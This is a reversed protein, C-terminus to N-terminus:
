GFQLKCIVSVIAGPTHSLIGNQVYVGKMIHRHLLSGYASEPKDQHVVGSVLLFHLNLDVYEQPWNSGTSGTAPLGETTKM